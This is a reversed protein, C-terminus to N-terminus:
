GFLIAISELDTVARRAQETTFREVYEELYMFFVVVADRDNNAPTM